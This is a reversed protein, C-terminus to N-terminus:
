PLPWPLVMSGQEEIHEIAAPPHDTSGLVQETWALTPASVTLQADPPALVALTVMGQANTPQTALVQATTADAVLIPVDRIGEGPDCARNQNLDICVTVTVPLAARADAADGPPLELISFTNM